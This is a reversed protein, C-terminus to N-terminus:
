IARAEDDLHDRCFAIRCIAIIAHEPRQALAPEDNKRSEGYPSSIIAEDRRGNEERLPTVGM